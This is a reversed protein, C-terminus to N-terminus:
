LSNSYSSIKKLLQRNNNIRAFAAADSLLERQATADQTLQAQLFKVKAVYFTVHFQACIKVAYALLKESQDNEHISAYFSGTYFALNIVRWVSATTELSLDPLAHRVKEFYYQAKDNENNNQYAIGTGCYALQTYITAHQEDLDTIIQDFNFLVDSIPRQSLAAVYGKLFCYQLKTEQDHRPLDAIQNLRKEADDYESTILDFEIKELEKLVAADAVRETPFVDELQLHLRQCLQAVIRIAPAKGNNEFKSLTAQTCIGDSLAKQSLGLAKRRAIFLEINM